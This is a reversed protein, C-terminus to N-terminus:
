LDGGHPSTAQMAENAPNQFSLSVLSTRLVEGIQGEVKGLTTVTSAPCVVSPTGGLLRPLGRCKFVGHLVIADGEREKGCLLALPSGQQQTQALGGNQSPRLPLGDDGELLGLIPELLALILEAGGSSGMSQPAGPAPELSM